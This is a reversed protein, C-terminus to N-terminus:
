KKRPNLDIRKSKLVMHETAVIDINKTKISLSEPANIKVDNQGQITVCNNQDVYVSVGGQVEILTPGSVKLKQIKNLHYVKQKQDEQDRKQHIKPKFEQQDLDVQETQKPPQNPQQKKSPM